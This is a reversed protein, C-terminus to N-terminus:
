HGDRVEYWIVGDAEFVPKFGLGAVFTHGIENGKAVSTIARGHREIVALLTDKLVGKSLWRGFGRPKICAHIQNGGVLVAGVLEGRVKVPRVQWTGFTAMFDGRSLPMRDKASEYAAELAEQRESPQPEM